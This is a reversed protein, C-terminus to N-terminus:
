QQDRMAKELQLEAVIKKLKDNETVLAVLRKLDDALGPPLYTSEILHNVSRATRLREITENGSM